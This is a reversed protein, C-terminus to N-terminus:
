CGILSLRPASQWRAPLAVLKTIKKKISHYAPRTDPLLSSPLEVSGAVTVFFYVILLTLLVGSVELARRTRRWRVKEEDYFIPRREKM